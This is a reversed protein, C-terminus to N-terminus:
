MLGINQVFFQVLSIFLWFNAYPFYKQFTKFFRVFSIRMLRSDGTTVNKKSIKTYQKPIGIILIPNLVVYLFSHEFYMYSIQM